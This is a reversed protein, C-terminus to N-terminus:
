KMKNILRNALKSVISRVDDSSKCNADDAYLINGSEVSVIRITIQYLDLLKGFSGIVMSKVNLIKGMEVACETDTCGTQQFGQEELIKDMNNKEIVKISNSTVLDQRFFDSVFASDGKSVNLPRFDMVAIYKLREKDYSSLIIKDRRTKNTEKRHKDKIRQELRRLTEIGITRELVPIIVQRAHLYKEEEPNIYLAKSIDRLAQEYNDMLVMVKARSYYGVDYETNLKIAKNYDKIAKNYNSLQKYVNGRNNYADEYEPNLEIANTYDEIAQDYNHKFYYINGRNLYTRPKKPNIEIAKNFDKISQDYNKIEGYTFGRNNYIDADKPNLEIAKTYDKIAQDHNNKNSHANGRLIYTDSKNFNGNEETWMKIAKTFFRIKENQDRSNKGKHYYEGFESAICVGMFLMSIFIQLLIIHKITKKNKSM